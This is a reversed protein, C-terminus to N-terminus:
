SSTSCATSLTMTQDEPDRIDPIVYLAPLLECRGLRDTVGHCADETGEELLLKGAATLMANTAKSAERLKDGADDAGRKRKAGGIAPMRVAEAKVKATYAKANRTVLQAQAKAQSSLVFLEDGETQMAAVQTVIDAM